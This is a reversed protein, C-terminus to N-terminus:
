VALAGSKTQLDASKEVPSMGSSLNTNLDKECGAAMLGVKLMEIIPYIKKLKM